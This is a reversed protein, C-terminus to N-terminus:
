GAPDLAALARHVDLSVRRPYGGGAAADGARADRMRGSPRLSSVCGSQLCNSACFILFM